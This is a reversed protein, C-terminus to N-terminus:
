TLFSELSWSCKFFDYWSLISLDSISLLFVIVPMNEVVGFYELSPNLADYLLYTNIALFHLGWSILSSSMIGATFSTICVTM